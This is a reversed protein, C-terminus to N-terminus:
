GVLRMRKPKSPGTAMAGKVNFILEIKATLETFLGAQSTKGGDTGSCQTRKKKKETRIFPEIVSARGTISLYCIATAPIGSM